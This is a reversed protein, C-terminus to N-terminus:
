FGYRQNIQGTVNKMDIFSLFKGKKTEVMQLRNPAFGDDGYIYEFITKDVNRVSGDYATKIDQLTKVAKRHMFGTESTSVATGMLGERGAMQHFYMQAPPLGRLFSATCYGHAELSEDGPRFWPLCRTEFTMQEKPRKGGIHQQGLFAAIQVLNSIKGKAGSLAAINLANDKPLTTQLKRGIKDAPAGIYALIQEEWKEAEAPDEPQAGMASVMMRTREIQEKVEQNFEPDEILCSSIGISFGYDALWRNLVYTTDTIFDAVRGVPYNMAMVHIISNREPGVHARTIVGSTLVGEQIIVSIKKGGITVSPGEYYLDEPLLASFLARGTYHNETIAETQIEEAEPYIYTIGEESEFPIAPRGEPDLILDIQEGERIVFNRRGVEVPTTYPVGYKNMRAELSALQDRHTIYSLADHFDGPRVTTDPQTMLMSAVPGNFVIGMTPKNSQANILCNQVSMLEHAEARADLVQLIHVNGEDGDFDANIPTTYSLHLGFTKQDRLVARYGMFSYKHLTPQRNFIVIDGDQMWREVIDGDRLTYNSRYKETVQNRTGALQAEPANEDAPKESFTIYTIRGKELLNQMEARNYRNVRVKPTMIPAMYLPVSIQGFAITPDPSLVTRASFDVRKAMMNNRILGEKGQLLETISIFPQGGGTYWGDTNNIFHKLRDFLNKRLDQVNDTKTKKREGRRRPIDEPKKGELFNKLAKVHRVIDIYMTTLPDAMYKGDEVTPPRAVPPIVLLVEMILRRPHAGNTYGMLEADEMSINNFIDLVEQASRINEVKEGEVIYEYTIQNTDRTKTSKYTPNQLCPRDEAGKEHRCSLGLSAKELSTLKTPGTQHHIGREKIEERSLLMGGCDNCVINLVAIIERLLLPHPMPEPLQIFGPHGPCEVIDRSCTACLSNNDTPGMQPDNVSGPGFQDTTTVETVALAKIEETSYITFLVEEIDVFPLEAERRRALESLRRRQEYTLRTTVSPVAKVRVRETACKPTPTELPKDATPPATQQLAPTPRTRRGRNVTTILRQLSAKPQTQM